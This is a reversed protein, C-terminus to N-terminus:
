PWRDADPILVAYPRSSQAFHADRPATRVIGPARGGENVLRLRGSRLLDEFCGLDVMFLDYKESVPRDPISTRQARRHLLRFDFLEQVVESTSQGPRRLAIVRRDNEVCREIVHNLAEVAPRSLRGEKDRRFYQRNSGDVDGASIPRDQALSAAISALQLADRPVGESFFCLNPFAQGPAFAIRIFEQASPFGPDSGEESMLQKAHNFLLNSFFDQVEKRDDEFMLYDDIDVSASTDAGLEIGTYDGQKGREIFNSRREIAGIKVTIGSVTFVSRRLLDALYPQLDLPLSSWEDILIWLTRQPLADVLGRLATALQGFSVHLKELGRQTRRQQSSQNDSRKDKYSAAIKPKSSIEASVSGGRETGKQTSITSENEVEGAVEVQTAAAGLADLRPGIQHLQNAFVGDTLTLEFIHAHIAEVVDVLLTTARAALPLQTDGYIGMSSGITRVDLYIATRDRARETKTLYRLVHTKGTGRRGYVVQHQPSRLMSELPSISVFTKALTEDDADESRKYARMLARNANGNMETRM